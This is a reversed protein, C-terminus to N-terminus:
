GPEERCRVIRVETVGDFDGDAGVLLAADVQEATAIAFANGLAPGYGLVYEAASQWVGDTGVSRIGIDFLWSVYRDADAGGYVRAIVYRIEALNVQSVFGSVEGESVADLYADVTEAGPENTAHAVIPETDFVVRDPLSTVATGATSTAPSEAVPESSAM